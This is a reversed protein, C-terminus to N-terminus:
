CCATSRGARGTASGAAGLFGFWAARDAERDSDHTTYRGATDILVADSTFWWDCNRTGGVGRVVPQGVEAALPFELGSNVLATTKGAGPAGIIIYWPLQYVFPRGSLGALWSANGAVSARAACCRCRRNSASPLSPWKRRARAAEASGCRGVLGDMLRRNRHAAASRRWLVRLAALAFLVAIAIWRAPEGALPM